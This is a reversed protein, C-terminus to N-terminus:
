LVRGGSAKEVRNKFARGINEEKIDEMYIFEVKEQDFERLNKYLDAIIQQKEQLSGAIKVILLPNHAEEDELFDCFFEQTVYFGHKGSIRGEALGRLIKKFKAAQEERSGEVLFLQGQPAYHRYKTGPSRPKESSFTNEEEAEIYQRIEELSLSGPRLIMAPNTTMDIVTSEIGIASQDSLIIGDVKGTLDELVHQGMTPSPRGSINASPAAVPINCERLFALALPDSPMRVGLTDLGATVEKPINKKAKLIMTLPGPWFKKALIKAENPIEEVLLDMQDMSHIHVILPNDRPRGKALFIKEIAVPSFASAGLGYVTETPFAVVGGDKLLNAAETILKNEIKNKDIKFIKTKM